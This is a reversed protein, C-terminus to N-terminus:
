PSRLFLFELEVMRLIEAKSPKTEMEAIMDKLQRPEEVDGWEMTEVTPDQACKQLLEYEAETLQIQNFSEDFV